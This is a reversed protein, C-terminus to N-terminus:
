SNSLCIKQFGEPLHELGSGINTNAINIWKLNTLNHLPQLSGTFRNYINQNLKERSHNDIFLKELNTFQSLFSLDQDQFNNSHISLHTLKEQNLNTLFNTDTLLNNAINLENIEPCNTIIIYNLQCNNAHFYTLKPLNLVEISTLNNNGCKISELNPFDQITLAGELNQNSIDLEKISEKERKTYTTNLREQANVM